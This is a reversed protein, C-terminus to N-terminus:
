SRTKTTDSIGKYIATDTFEKLEKFKGPCELTNDYLAEHEAVIRVGKTWHCCEECIVRAAAEIIQDMWLTQRRCTLHVTPNGWKDRRYQHRYEFSPGYVFAKHKKYLEPRLQELGRNARRRLNRLKVADLDGMFATDDSGWDPVKM